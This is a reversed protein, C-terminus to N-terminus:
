RKTELLPALEHENLAAYGLPTLHLMDLSFPSRVRGSEDALVEDAHLVTAGDCALTDVFANLEAISRAVEDSWFLERTLPVSGLPFVTFLVVRAGLARTKAVVERINHKAAAVIEDRREPLVPIAKLDNVGMELVVVDPHLPPVDHDFRNLIQATTQRGVGRNVFQYAPLAAPTSWMLARSDGFFVVRRQNPAPAPVEERAYSTLGLPDLRVANMECYFSRGMRFLTVNAALLAALGVSLGVVAIRTCKMPPAM